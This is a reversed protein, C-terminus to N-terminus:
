TIRAVLTRAREDIPEVVTYRQWWIPLGQADKPVGVGRVVGVIDGSSSFVPSGSAMAYSECGSVWPSGYRLRCAQILKTRGGDRDGHFGVQRVVEGDKPVGLVYRKFYGTPCRVRVFALDANALRRVELVMCISSRSREFRYSDLTAKLANQTDFFLHASTVVLDNSILAGSGTGAPASSVIRGVGSYRDIEEVRLTRREDVSAVSLCVLVLALIAM